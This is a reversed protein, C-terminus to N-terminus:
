PRLQYWAQFMIYTGIKKRHDNKFTAHELFMQKIYVPDFLGQKKLYGEDFFENILGRCRRDQLWKTFPIAFGQKRRKLIKNPVYKQAVAKFLRKQFIYDTPLHWAFEMLQHDLYPVRLELSAAMSARDAKVLLDDTLYGYIDMYQIKKLVNNASTRSLINRYHEELGAPDITGFINSAFLSKKEEALFAGMWKLHRACPDKLVRGARLFQRAKFGLTFYESSVPLCNGLVHPLSRLLSAPIAKSSELFKHALYTPYGMFLEDGGEGSLATKVYQRVFRSLFYTPFVSMDGLPEDLQRSVEPFISIFDNLTFVRHHHQTGLSRAVMHAYESEDFTREEFGISFTNCKGSLSRMALAALTSSDLGGSLLVGVPVDATLHEHVSTKLLQELREGADPFSIVRAEAKSRGLDWYGHEELGSPSHILFTGPRLKYLNKYICFPAPVYELSFYLDLAKLDLERSIFPLNLLPKIESAFAFISQNHFYYLPKIGFRDRAVFLNKKKNDWLAFAFMGKLRELCREGIEEYLHVIVEIDTTSHFKHSRQQLEARLASANYIEGNCVLILSRDENFIPQVGATSLDVISLRTAGLFLREEVGCYEGRADPGRHSLADLMRYRIDQLDDPAIGKVGCIGCM